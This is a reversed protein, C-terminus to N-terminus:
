SIWSYFLTELLIRFISVRFEHKHISDKHDNLIMEFENLKAFIKKLDDIKKNYDESLEKKAKEIDETAAKTSLKKHADAIQEKLENLNLTKMDRM